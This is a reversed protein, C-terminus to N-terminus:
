AADRLHPILARGGTKVLARRLAEKLAMAEPPNILLAGDHHPRADLLKSWDFQGM